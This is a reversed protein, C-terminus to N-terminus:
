EHNQKCTVSMFLHNHVDGPRLSLVKARLAEKLAAAPPEAPLSGGAPWASAHRRWSHAAAAACHTCHVPGRRHRPACHVPRRRHRRACHVPRRRHRRRPEELTPRRQAASLGPTERMEELFGLLARRARDSMGDQVLSIGQAATFTDRSESSPASTVSGQEFCPRMAWLRQVLPEAPLSGGAPWTSAHRRWLALVYM